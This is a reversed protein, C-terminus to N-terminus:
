SRKPASLLGIPVAKRKPKRSRADSCSSTNMIRSAKVSPKWTSAPTVSTDDLFLPTFPGAKAFYENWSSAGSNDGFAWFFSGTAGAQWCHWAQLRYYSYPDLLKAPGSCSYFQLTRGRQQQNRYFTAFPEGRELWMPRNPCLIDCVEFLEAPAAAPDRYTPDEWVIVDPEAAQIARAWALLPSIDSGEHPEDHILLGLRDPTIGKSRLHRVWASIWTGVRQNFEASGIKAGGLSTQIAGSHHAVSLFVLYAKADPWAGIWDDLQQTALRIKTPDENDFEYSRLVSSSAWPASVFHEKL